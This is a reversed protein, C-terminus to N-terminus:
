LLAKRFASYFGDLWSILRGAMASYAKAGVQNVVAKRLGEGAEKGLEKPDQNDLIDSVVKPAFLGGLFKTLNNPM